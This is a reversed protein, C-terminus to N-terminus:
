APVLSRIGTLYVEEVDYYYKAIRERATKAADGVYKQSSGALVAPHLRVVESNTEPDRLVVVLSNLIKWMEKVHAEYLGQLRLVCNQVERPKVAVGAGKCVDIGAINTFRMQELSSTGDPVIKPVGTGTYLHRLGNLFTSWEPEYLETVPAAGPARPPAGAVAVPYAPAGQDALRWWNKISLFQLTRWPYIRNLTTEKWYPDNCINTQISRDPLIGRPPALTAARIAAPTSQKSLDSRFLNFTAIIKATASFPIDYVQGTDGRGLLAQQQMQQFIRQQPNLDAVAAAYPDRPAFRGLPDRAAGYPDRPLGFPDRAAAAAYPDRAAAYPDRPLGFPDRAAAAAYPDRAAAAYPYRTAAAAAYPNYATAATYPNYGSTTGFGGTYTDRAAGLSSRLVNFLVGPEGRSLYARFVNNAKELDSLSEAARDVYGQTRRFINVWMDYPEFNLPPKGSLSLFRNRYLVGVMYPLEAGDTLRFPLISDSTGDLQIPALINMNLSGRPMEPVGPPYNAGGRASLKANFSGSDRSDGDLTIFLKPKAPSTNRSTLEFLLGDGGAPRVTGAKVYGKNQFWNVIDDTRAGGKQKVIPQIAAERSPTAVQISALCAVVTAILTVMTEALQSCVRKRDEAKVIMRPNQYAIQVKEGSIDAVFPLLRSSKGKTLFDEIQKKLFIAYDGCAGPRALNNIDYIDPTSLVRMVVVSLKDLDSSLRASIPFPNELGASRSATGGM